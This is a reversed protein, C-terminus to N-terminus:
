LSRSKVVGFGGLFRQKSESDISSIRLMKSQTECRPAPAAAAAAHQPGAPDTAARPPPAAATTSQVKAWSLFGERRFALVTVGLGVLFSSGVILRETVFSPTSPCPLWSTPSTCGTSFALRFHQTYRTYVRFTLLPKELM